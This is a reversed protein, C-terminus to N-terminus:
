IGVRRPRRLFREAYTHIAYTHINDAHLAGYSMRMDHERPERLRRRRGRRSSSRPGSSSAYRRRATTSATDARVCVGCAIAATPTKLWAALAPQRVSSAPSLAPPPPAPPHPRRASRTWCLSWRKRAGSSRRRSRTRRSAPVCVFVCVFVFFVCLCVCLCVFREYPLVSTSSSATHCCVPFSRPRPRLHPSPPRLTTPRYHFRDFNTTGAGPVLLTSLGGLSGVRLVDELPSFQPRRAVGAHSGRVRGDQDALIMDAWRKVHDRLTRRANLGEGVLADITARTTM